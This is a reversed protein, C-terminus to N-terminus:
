KKTKKGQDSQSIDNRATQHNEIRDCLRNSSLSVTIEGNRDRSVHFMTADSLTLVAM